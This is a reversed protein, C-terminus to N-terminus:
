LIINVIFSYGCAVYMVICKLVAYTHLFLLCLTVVCQIIHIHTIKECILYNCMYTHVYMYM